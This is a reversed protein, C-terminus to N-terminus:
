IDTSGPKANELAIALDALTRTLEEYTVENIENVSEIVAIADRLSGPLVELLNTEVTDSPLRRREALFEELQLVEGSTLRAAVNPPVSDVDADFEAVQRYVNNDELTNDIRSCVVASGAIIIKM